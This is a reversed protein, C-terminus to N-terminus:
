CTTDELLAVYTIAISSYHRQTLQIIIVTSWALAVPVTHHVNSVAMTALGATFAARGTFQHIPGLARRNRIALKPFLYAYLGVFYQVAFLLCCNAHLTQRCVHLLTHQAKGNGKQEKAVYRTMSKLVCLLRLTSYTRPAHQEVIDVSPVLFYAPM